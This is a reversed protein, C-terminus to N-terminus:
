SEEGSLIEATLGVAVYDPVSVHVDLLRAGVPIVLPYSDGSMLIPQADIDVGIIQPSIGNPATEEKGCEDM